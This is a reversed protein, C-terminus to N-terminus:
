LMYNKASGLLTHLIMAARYTEPYRLMLVTIRIQMLLVSVLFLAFGMYFITNYSYPNYELQGFFARILLLLVVAFYVSFFASIQVAHEEAGVFLMVALYVAAAGTLAAINWLKPKKDRTDFRFLREKM